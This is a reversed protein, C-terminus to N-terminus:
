GRRVGIFVPSREPKLEKWPLDLFTNFAHFHYSLAGMQLSYQLARGGDLLTAHQLNLKQALAAVESVNMAGGNGSLIFVLTGDKRMGALSRYTIKPGDFFRDPKLDVYSFITHNKMLSPYGQSAETAPGPTEEYLSKPGFYTKGGKVFFYGTWAPFPPNRQVSEHIVLGLPKGKPDRFNATISFVLNGAYLREKATTLAFKNLFTTQFSYGTAPIEIVNVEADILRSVLSQKFTEAKRQVALVTWRMGAEEAKVTRARELEAITVASVDKWTGKSLRVQLPQTSHQYALYTANSRLNFCHDAAILIFLCPVSLLVFIWVLCGLRARVGNPEAKM